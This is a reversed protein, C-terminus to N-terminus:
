LNNELISQIFLPTPPLNDDSIIVNLLEKQWTIFSSFEEESFIIYRYAGLAYHRTRQLLQRAVQKDDVLDEPKNYDLWDTDENYTFSYGQNALERHKKYDDQSIERAPAPILDLDEFFFKGKHFYIKRM